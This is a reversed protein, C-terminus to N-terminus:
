RAAPAPVPAVPDPVSRVQLPAQATIPQACAPCKFDASALASRPARGNRAQAAEAMRNGTLCYYCFVHGCPSAVHPQWAPSLKCCPCGAQLAEALPVTAGDAAARGQAQQAGADSLGVQRAMWQAAKGIAEFNIAPLLFLMFESLAGWAIQQNMFEFSAQRGVRPRVYLLRICLVRELLTRYSCVCCSGVLPRSTLERAMELV